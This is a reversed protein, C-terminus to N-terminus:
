IHLGFVFGVILHGFGINSEPISPSNTDMPYDTYFPGMKQTTAFLYSASIKGYTVKKDWIKINLGALLGASINNYNNISPSGTDETKNFMLAPGTQVEFDKSIQYSYVPIISVNSFRAFLYDYGSTAGLVENLSSYSLLLGAKSKAGIKYSYSVQGTLPVGSYHPHSTTGGFFFNNTTADFHYDKMLGSMQSAPGIANFGFLIELSGKKEADKKQASAPLINIIIILFVMLLRFPIKMKESCPIGPEVGALDHISLM